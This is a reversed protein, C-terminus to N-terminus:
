AAVTIRAERHFFFPAFYYYLVHLPLMLDRSLSQLSNATTLSYHGGVHCVDAGGGARVRRSSHPPLKCARTEVM